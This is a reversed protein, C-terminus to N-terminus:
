CFFLIGPVCAGKMLVAPWYLGSVVVVLRDLSLEIPLFLLPCCELVPGPLGRGLQARWQSNMPMSQGIEPHFLESHVLMM